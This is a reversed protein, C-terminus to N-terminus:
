SLSSAGCFPLRGKDSLRSLRRPWFHLALPTASIHQFVTAPLASVVWLPAWFGSPVKHSTKQYFIHLRFCTELRHLLLFLHFDPLFPLLQYFFLVPLSLISLPVRSLYSFNPFYNPFSSEFSRSCEILMCVDGKLAM